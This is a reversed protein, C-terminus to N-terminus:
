GDSRRKFPMRWAVRSWKMGTPPRRSPRWSAKLWDETGYLWRKFTGRQQQTSTRDELVLQSLTDVDACLKEMAALRKAGDEHVSGIRANILHIEGSDNNRWNDIVGALTQQNTSVKMLADHVEGLEASYVAQADQLRQANADLAREITGIRDGLSSALDLRYQDLGGSLNHMQETLAAQATESSQAALRVASRVGTIEDSLATIANARESREAGLASEIAALRDALGSDSALSADGGARAHLANEIASLRGDLPSLDTNQSLPQRAMAAELASLRDAFGREIDALREFIRQAVSQDLGPLSPATAVLALPREHEGSEFLPGGAHTHARAPGASSWFDRSARPLHRVILDAGAVDGGVDGLAQVVDDVGAARGSHAARSAALRLVDELEPSRRPVTGGDSGSAPPEGAVAIASDRRLSAVRVGRAELAAAAADVRTMALLLHSLRVEAARYALAVDYAQNACALLIDDVWIPSSRQSPRSVVPPQPPSSSAERWSAPDTSAASWRSTRLDLDPGRYDM